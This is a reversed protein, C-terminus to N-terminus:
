RHILKKLSQLILGDHLIFDFECRAFRPSRKTIAINRKKDVFVGLKEAVGM